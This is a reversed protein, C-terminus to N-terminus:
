TQASGALAEGPLLRTIDEESLTEKELLVAMAAKIQEGHRRVLTESRAFAADVLARVVLDIRDATRDGFQRPSGTPAATE